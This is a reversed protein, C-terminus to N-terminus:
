LYRETYTLEGAAGTVKVHAGDSISFFDSLLDYPAYGTGATATQREMDIVVRAGPTVNPILVYEGTDENSARVNAATATLALTPWAEVSGAVRVERAVGAALEVSHEPGYVYPDFCTFTIEVEGYYARNEVPTEGTPMAMCWLGDGLDLRRPEAQNFIPSYERLAAAIGLPDRTEADLRLRVVVQRTGMRRSAFYAGPRQALEHVKAEVPPLMPLDVDVIQFVEALNVGAYELRTCGVRGYNLRM